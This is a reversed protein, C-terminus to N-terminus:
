PLLTNPTEWIFTMTMHGHFVVDRFSDEAFKKEHEAKRIAYEEMEELNAKILEETTWGEEDMDHQFLEELYDASFQDAIIEGNANFSGDSYLHQATISIMEDMPHSYASESLDADITSTVVFLGEGYRPSSIVDGVKPCNDM